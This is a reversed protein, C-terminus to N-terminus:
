DEFETDSPEREAQADGAFLVAGDIPSITAESIGRSLQVEIRQCSTWLKRLREDELASLDAFELGSFILNRRGVRRSHIVRGRFTIDREEDPCVSLLVDAGIPFAEASALGAGGLSLNMVRASTASSQNEKLVRLEAPVHLKVPLGVRYTGRRNWVDPASRLSSTDRDAQRVSLEAARDGVQEWFSQTVEAGDTALLHLDSSDMRLSLEVGAEQELGIRELQIIPVVIPNLGSSRDGEPVWIVYEDFVGIHGRRCGVRRSTRVSAAWLSLTQDRLDPLREGWLDRLTRSVSQAQEKEEDSSASDPAVGLTPQQMKSARGFALLFSREHDKLGPIALVHKTGNKTLTLKGDGGFDLRELDSWKYDTIAAIGVLTDLSGGVFFRLGDRLQVLIGPHSLVGREVAASMIQFVLDRSPLGTLAHSKAADLAAYIRPAASGSFRHSEEGVRFEVRRPGSLILDSIDAVSAQVKLKRWMMKELGSPEFHVTRTTVTIDGGAMVVPSTAYDISTQLLYREGADFGSSETAQAAQDRLATLRESVTKAWKGMFKTTRKNDLITVVRDIGVIDIKKIKATEITVSKLGMMRNLRNPEFHLRQSTLTLDGIVSLPGLMMSCEGRGLLEEEKRIQIDAM